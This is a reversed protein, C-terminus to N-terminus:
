GAPAKRKGFRRQPLRSRSRRDIRKLSEIHLEWAGLEEGPKEDLPIGHLRKHWRGEGLVLLWIEAVTILAKTRSFHKAKQVEDAMLRLLRNDLPELQPANVSPIDKGLIRQLKRWNDSRRIPASLPVLQFGSLYDALCEACRIPLGFDGRIYDVLDQWWTKELEIRIKAGVSDHSQNIEAQAKMEAREREQDWMASDSVSQRQGLREIVRPRVQKIHKERIRQEDETTFRPVNFVGFRTVHDVKRLIERASPNRVCSAPDLWFWYQVDFEDLSQSPGTASAVASLTQKRQCSL